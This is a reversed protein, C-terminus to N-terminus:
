RILRFQTSITERMTRAIRQELRFKVRWGDNIQSEGGDIM